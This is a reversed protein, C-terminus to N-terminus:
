NTQNQAEEEGQQEAIGLEIKTTRCNSTSITGTFSNMKSSCKEVILGGSGDSSISTVYTDPRPQNRPVRHFRDPEAEYTAKLVEVPPKGNLAKQPIHHNYLRRYHNLTQELEERNRIHVAALVETIRGNFREVMGNTQPHRPPILRHEIGHAACLQDVPHKGSSEGTPQNLRDTFCAENDTLLHTLGFPAAQILNAVFARASRQKRDARVELYVWRSARDIAVYLYRRRDEEPLQPLYKIDVHVFGVQYDKFTKPAPQPEEGLQEAKMAALNSMGNRKLCRELASRSLDPKLFERGLRLLDDLPLWLLQRLEVLVTETAPDLTTPLNAPTHSGDTTSDKKKWRRVTDRSVGLEKALAREGKGSQQIYTRQRPTTTANRHLHIKM